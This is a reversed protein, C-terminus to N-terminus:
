FENLLQVPERIARGGKDYIFKSALCLPITFQNETVGYGSNGKFYVSFDVKKDDIIKNLSKGVNKGHKVEIAYLCNDTGSKLCFDVVCGNYVGFFLENYLNNSLVKENLVKFIFNEYLIGKKDSDHTSYKSLLFSLIGLDNFYIRESNYINSNNLDLKDCYSIFGAAKLWSLAKYLEENTIRM